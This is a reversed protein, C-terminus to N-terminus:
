NKRSLFRNRRKIETFWIMLEQFLLMGQLFALYSLAMPIKLKLIFKERHHEDKEPDGFIGMAILPANRDGQYLGEMAALKMPQTKAVQRASEDGSWMTGITALLGFVTAVLISRKGLIVDKEKFYVM